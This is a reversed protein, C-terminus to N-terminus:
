GVILLPFGYIWGVRLFQNVQFLILPVNRFAADSWYEGRHAFTLPAVRKRMSHLADHPMLHKCIRCRKM